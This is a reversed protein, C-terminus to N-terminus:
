PVKNNLFEFKAFENKMMRKKLCFYCLGNQTKIKKICSRSCNICFKATNNKGRM